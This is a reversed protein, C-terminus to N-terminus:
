RGWTSRAKTPPPEADLDPTVRDASRPQDDTASESPSAPRQGTDEHSPTRSPRARLREPLPELPPPTESSSGGCALLTLAAFCVALVGPSSLVM